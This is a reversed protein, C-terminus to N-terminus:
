LVYGFFCTVVGMLYTLGGFQAHMKADSESYKGSGWPAMPGLLGMVTQLTLLVAVGSGLWSHYTSLHSKKYEDKLEWMALGSVWVCAVGLVSFLMHIWVRTHGFQRQKQFWLGSKKAYLNFSAHYFFCVSSSFASLGVPFFFAFAAVIFTTHKEFLTDPINFGQNLIHVLAATFATAFLPYLM